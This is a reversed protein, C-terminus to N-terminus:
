VPPIIHYTLYNVNLNVAPGESPSIEIVIVLCLQFPVKNSQWSKFSNQYYYNKRLWCQYCVRALTLAQPNLILLGDSVEVRLKEERRKLPFSDKFVILCGSSFCEVSLKHRLQQSFAKSRCITLAWLHLFSGDGLLPSTFICLHQQEQGLSIFSRM